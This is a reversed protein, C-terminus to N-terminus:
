VQLYERCIELAQELLIIHEAKILTSLESLLEHLRMETLHSLLVVM